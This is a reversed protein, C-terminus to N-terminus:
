PKKELKYRCGVVATGGFVSLRTEITLDGGHKHCSEQIAEAAEKAERNGCGSLLAAVAILLAKNM